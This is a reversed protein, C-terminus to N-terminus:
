TSGGFPESRPIIKVRVKRDLIDCVAISGRGQCVGDPCRGCWVVGDKVGYQELVARSRHVITTLPRDTYDGNQCKECTKLTPLEDFGPLALCSTCLDFM